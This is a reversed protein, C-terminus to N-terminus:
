KKKAMNEKLKRYDELVLNANDANFFQNPDDYKTIKKAVLYKKGKYDIDAVKYITGDKMEYLQWEFYHDPNLERGNRQLDTFDPLVNKATDIDSYREMWEYIPKEQPHAHIFAHIEQKSIEDPLTNYKNYLLQIFDRLTQNKEYIGHYKADPYYHYYTELFSRISESSQMVIRLCIERALGISYSEDQNYPRKGLLYIKGGVTKKILEVHEMAFPMRVEWLSINTTVGGGRFGQAIAKANDAELTDIANDKTLITNILAQKHLMFRQYPLESIGLDKMLRPYRQVIRDVFEDRPDIDGYYGQLSISANFFMFIENENEMIDTLLRKLKDENEPSVEYRETINEFIYKVSEERAKLIDATDPNNKYYLPAWIEKHQRKKLTIAESEEREKKQRDREGLHMGVGIASALWAAVATAILTSKFTKKRKWKGEESRGSELIAMAIGQDETPNWMLGWAQQALNKMKETTFRRSQIAWLFEWPQKVYNKGGHKVLVQENAKAWSLVRMNKEDYTVFFELKSTDIGLAAFGAMVWEKTKNHTESNYYPNKTNPDGYAALMKQIDDAYTESTKDPATFYTLVINNKEGFATDSAMNKYIQVIEADSFNGISGGLFFYIKQKIDKFADTSLIDANMGATKMHIGHLSLTHQVESAAHDVFYPSIDTPIYTKGELENGLTKYLLKASKKGDGCGIDILNRVNKEEMRYRIVRQCEETAYLDIEHDAFSKYWTSWAVQSFKYAGNDETLPNGRDYLFMGNPEHNSDFLQDLYM